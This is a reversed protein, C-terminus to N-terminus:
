QTLIYAVINNLEDDSYDEGYTTPMIDVFGEVVYAGPDVISQYLYEAAPVGDVRTAAQEGMGTLAPGAGDAPGHCGGCSAAFLQEGNAPDGAAPLEEGTSQEEQGEGSASLIYAVLADQEKRSYEEGYSKPMIDAFGEVVYAGPDVIAERLYEAASLGDVRTAAREGMGTFAPGAGDAVGHCASCQVFLEEGLDILEAESLSEDDGALSATEPQPQLAEILEPEEGKPLTPIPTLDGALDANGCAGLVIGLALFALVIIWSRKFM